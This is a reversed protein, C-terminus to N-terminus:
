MNLIIRDSWIDREGNWKDLGDMTWKDIQGEKERAMWRGYIWRGDMRRYIQKKEM